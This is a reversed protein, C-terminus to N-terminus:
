IAFIKGGCVCVCVCLPLHEFYLLPVHFVAKLLATSRASTYRFPHKQISVAAFAMVCTQFLFRVSFDMKLKFTLSM